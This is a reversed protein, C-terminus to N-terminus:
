KIIAEQEKPKTFTLIICHHRVERPSLTQVLGHHRIYRLVGKGRDEASQSANQNDNSVVPNM